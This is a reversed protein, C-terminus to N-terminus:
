RDPAIALQRRGARKAALMAKDAAEISGSSDVSAVGISVSLESPGDAIELPRAVAALVRRGVEAAQDLGVGNLLVVFEDGGIRAVFADSGCAEVLREAVIMLIQDGLSHGHTDNVVKFRDVDIFLVTSVASVHVLATDLSRKNGLGTLPDCNADLRLQDEAEWREILLATARVLKQIRQAVNATIASAVYDAPVRGVILYAGALRDRVHVPAVVARQWGRATMQASTNDAIFSPDIIETTSPSLGDWPQWGNEADTHIANAITADEARSTCVDIRGDDGFEVLVWRNAYSANDVALEECLMRKVECRDAGEMELELSRTVSGYLTVPVLLAVWDPDGGITHIGTPIVDVAHHMGQPDVVSVRFPVPLAIADPSDIASELFYTALDNADSPAVFEFVNTGVLRSTDFGLFGGFGGHAARITGDVGVQITLARSHTLLEEASMATATSSTTM